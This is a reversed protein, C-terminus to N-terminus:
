YMACMVSVIYTQMCTTALTSPHSSEALDAAMGISGEDAYRWWTRGMTRAQEAALHLVMHRKPYWRWLLFRSDKQASEISLCSYLLVHRRVFEELRSASGAGWSELETYAKHLYELCKYVRIDREGVPPFHMSMM